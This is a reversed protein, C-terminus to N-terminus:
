CKLSDDVYKVFKHFLDDTWIHSLMKGFMRKLRIKFKLNLKNIHLLCYM